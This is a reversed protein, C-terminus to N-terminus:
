SELYDALNNDEGLPGTLLCMKFESGVGKRSNRGLSLRDTKKFRIPREVRKAMAKNQHLPIRCKGTQVGSPM